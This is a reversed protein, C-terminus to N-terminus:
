NRPSSYERVERDAMLTGAKGELVASADALGGIGAIRGGGGVFAAAAEAKAWRDRPLNARAFCSFACAYPGLGLKENRNVLPNGIKAATM